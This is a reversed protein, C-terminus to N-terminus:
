AEDNPGSVKSSHLKQTSSAVKITLSDTSTHKLYTIIYLLTNSMINLQLSEEERTSKLIFNNGQVSVSFTLSCSHSM